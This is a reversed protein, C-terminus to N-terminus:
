DPLEELNEKILWYRQYEEIFAFKASDVLKDIYLTGFLHDTEHQIVTAALGELEWDISQANADLAQLRIQSPRRVLGRMGPISLCGEWMERTESGIATIKPNCLVQLPLSENTEYRPNDPSVQVVCLQINQHVQPAALGIGEYEQMTEIMDAILRQTKESKIEEPSLERSPSRLVPHGMRAVKLIAM